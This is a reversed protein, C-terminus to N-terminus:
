NQEHFILEPKGRLTWVGNPATSIICIRERLAPGAHDRGCQPCETLRATGRHYKQGSLVTVM